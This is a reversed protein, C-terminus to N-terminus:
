ETVILRLQFAIGPIGLIGIVLSMRHAGAIRIGPIQIVHVAIDPLPHRVPITIIRASRLGVRGTRIFALITHQPAAGEVNFGGTAQARRVPAPVNGLEPAPAEAEAARTSGAALKSLMVFITM